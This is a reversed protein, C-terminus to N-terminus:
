ETLSIAVRFGINDGRDSSPRTYRFSCRAYALTDRFSGGRLVRLNPLISLEERGDDPIYPYPALKSSCWEWVNGAM